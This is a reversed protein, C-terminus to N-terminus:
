GHSAKRISERVVQVVTHRLQHVAAGLAGTDDKVKIAQQGTESAETSVENIRSTMENAASATESVSHAIEATAAGQQEVSLAISGAIANIESITQEIRGVAAVSAGTATRVEGIHRNIEETSRATQTALQKVESAVVAFGKGADGARAAEITANLALLNTKAAIESIMDAVAGIRAVEDNLAAITDRTERGAEVARAVVATSHEVQGGIARISSALQEAASAVTQANALAQRAAAAASGASAGTRGASATMGIATETMGTTLHTVQELAATAETEITEAMGILAAHKAGEASERENRQEAALREATLMGEKFVVVAKAMGGVEDRRGTGPVAASLDGEALQAMVATLRGLSQTIDREVLWAALLTVTLIAGGISGLKVLSARFSAEIDDTWSGTIIDLQWPAFRGVYSIKPQRETQGPKAVAYTIVGGDTNRLAERALEASSRGHDDKATTPKGERKADGGHMVVMGDFTQALFYDDAGGYRVSHLQERFEALAEERTIRQAIVKKELFQAFGRAELVVARLKDIRDDLMRQHMLSSAVGVLAVLALASLGMLLALKTRLRLRSLFQM